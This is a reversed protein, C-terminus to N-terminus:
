EELALTADREVWGGLGDPVIEMLDIRSESILSIRGFNQGLYNGEVVRYVLSDPATIVAWVRGDQQLHGVFRLTDLPFGELPERNRQMDPQLGEGGMVDTIADVAAPIFPDRLESQNYQYSEYSKVEPLPAIRGAKRAKVSEVYTVLDGHSDSTCAPLLPSLVFMILLARLVQGAESAAPTIETHNMISM